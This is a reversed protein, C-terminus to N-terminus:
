LICNVVPKTQSASPKRPTTTRQRHRGQGTAGRSAEGGRLLLPNSLADQPLLRGCGWWPSALACEAGGVGLEILGPTESAGRLEYATM